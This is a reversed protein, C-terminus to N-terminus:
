YTKGFKGQCQSYRAQPLQGLDRAYKLKINLITSVINENMKGVKDSRIDNWNMRAVNNRLRTINKVVVM